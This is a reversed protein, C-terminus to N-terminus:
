GGLLRTSRILLSVQTSGPMRSNREFPCSGPWHATAQTPLPSSQHLSPPKSSNLHMKCKVGTATTETTETTAPSTRSPGMLEASFTLTESVGAICACYRWYQWYRGETGVFGLSRGENARLCAETQRREETNGDCQQKPRRKPFTILTDRRRM